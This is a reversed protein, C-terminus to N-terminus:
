RKPRALWKLLSEWGASPRTAPAPVHNDSSRTPSSSPGTSQNQGAGSPSAPPSSADRDVPPIAGPTRTATSDETHGRPSRGRVQSQPAMPLELIATEGDKEFEVEGPRVRTLKYGDLEDGLRYCREDVVALGGNEAVTTAQLKHASEFAEPSGPRPSVEEVDDRIVPKPRIWEPAPSFADKGSGIDALKELWALSPDLIPTKTATPKNVVQPRRKAEQPSMGAEAEQPHNLLIRDALFAVAAIGLLGLYIMRKRNM